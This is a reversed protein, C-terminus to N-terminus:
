RHIKKEKITLELNKSFDKAEETPAISKLNKILKKSFKRTYWNSKTKRNACYTALALAKQFSIEPNIEDMLEQDDKSILKGNTPDKFVEPQKNILYFISAVMHSPSIKANEQNSFLYALYYYDYKIYDLLLEKTCVWYPLQHLSAEKKMWDNHLVQKAEKPLSAYTNFYNILDNAMQRINQNKPYQSKTNGIINRAKEFITSDSIPFDDKLVLNYLVSYWLELTSETDLQEIIEEESFEILQSKILCYDLIELIM